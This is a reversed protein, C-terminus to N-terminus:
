EFVGRGLAREWAAEATIRDRQSVLYAKQRNILDNEIIDWDEFSILGNDYKSRAIEARVSAADLFSKDAELRKVADVFAKHASVLRARVQTEAGTKNYAAALDRAKASKFNHYDTGGSFLPLSLGVGVSWRNDEPFWQDGQRGVAANVDLSPFFASRAERVTEQALKKQGAARRFEPTQDMLGDLSDAYSKLPRPKTVPVTGAVRIEDLNERGLVRALEQRSTEIANAAQQRDFEADDLYARSLLLSGKNERGSEFRLAVLNSNDRRRKVIDETLRHFDQAYRLEAFASKLDFSAQSRALHLDSRAVTENAKGQGIRAKDRFGSFVNQRANVSFSLFSNNNDTLVGGASPTLTGPSSTSRGGNSYDANGTVQPFFAGYAAKTQYRASSVTAEAARITPNAQAAEDVCERWSLTEAAANPAALLVLVIMVRPLRM